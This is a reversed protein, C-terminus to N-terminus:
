RGPDLACGADGGTDKSKSFAQVDFTVLARTLWENTMASAKWTALSNCASTPTASLETRLASASSTLFAASSRYSWAM